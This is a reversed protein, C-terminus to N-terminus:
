AAPTEAAGSMGEEWAAQLDAAQQEPTKDGALIAQFGDLMTENFAPPALVDVNYGLQTEGAAAADLVGLVSQALPSLELGSTDVEMPMFFRAEGVWRKATEPSVLYELFQGAETQNESQSSIFYASGVGSAWVRGKGGPIEPFPIMAVQQDPMNEQINRVLWSGTPLMLAQGSYFLSAADDYNVANVDPNFCGAAQLDVFFTKIATVIEPADWRGQNEYLLARMADPGIMQNSAISFQHFAPWGDQNGFAIPIYGKASAEGCFATLQEVTEPVQLGEQEMLGQNVYVGIVDISLPLGYLQGDITAGQLATAAIRDRWGYQEALDDLPRLLGADVLVGAYGPGPDYLIVDPGTGSGLAANLTQRMEDTGFAEREITVNPNAESFGAYIQDVVESEPGTFQDWVRMTVEEDQATARFGSGFLTAVLVIAIVGILSHSRVM